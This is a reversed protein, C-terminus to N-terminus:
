WRPQYKTRHAIAAIRKSSNRKCFLCPNEEVIKPPQKIRLSPLRKGALVGGTPNLAPWSTHNATVFGICNLSDHRHQGVAFSTAQHLGWPRLNSRDVPQKCVALCLDNGISVPLLKVCSLLGKAYYRASRPYFYRAQTLDILHEPPLQM